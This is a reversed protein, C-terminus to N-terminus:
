GSMVKEVATTLLWWLTAPILVAAVGVHLKARQVTAVLYAFFAFSIQLGSRSLAIAWQALLHGRLADALAMAAVEGTAAPLRVAYMARVLLFGAAGGFLIAPILAYGYVEMIRRSDGERGMLILGADVALSLLLWAAISIPVLAWASVNTFLRLWPQLEPPFLTVVNASLVLQPVIMVSAYTLAMLLGVVPWPRRALVRESWTQM